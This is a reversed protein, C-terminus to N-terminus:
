NKKFNYRIVTSYILTNNDYNFDSQFQLGLSIRNKTLFMFRMGIPVNFYTNSIPVSYDREFSIHNIGIGSYIDTSMWEFIKPSLEYLLNISTFSDDNTSLINVNTGSNLQLRFNQKHIKFGLDLGLHIGGTSFNDQKKNTHFVSLPILQIDKVLFEQSNALFFSM